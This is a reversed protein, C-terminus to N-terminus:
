RVKRASTTQGMDKAPHQIELCPVQPCNDRSSLFISELHHSM